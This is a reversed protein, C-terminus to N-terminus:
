ASVFVPPGQLEQLLHNILSDPDTLLWSHHFPQGHKAAPWLWRSWHGVALLRGFFALAAQQNWGATKSSKVKMIALGM